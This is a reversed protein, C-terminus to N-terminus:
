LFEHVDSDSDDDGGAQTAADESDDILCTTPVLQVQAVKWTAGYEHKGFCIRSLELVLRVVSGVPVDERGIPRKAADFCAVDVPVKVKFGSDSFFSKFGRRLVDDELHKSVAFWSSKNAVCADEITKETKQLFARLNADPEIFVFPIDPDALTPTLKVPTTQIRAVPDIPVVYLRASLDKSIKGYQLAGLDVSRYPLPASM